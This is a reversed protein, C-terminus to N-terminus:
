LSTIVKFLLLWLWYIVIVFINGCSGLFLLGILSAIIGGLLSSVFALSIFVGLVVGLIGSALRGFASLLLRLTGQATCTSKSASCGIEGLLTSLFCLLWQVIGRLTSFISLVLDAVSSIISLLLKTVGSFITLTFVFIGLVM